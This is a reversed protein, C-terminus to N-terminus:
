AITVADIADGKPLTYPVYAHFFYDNGWSTGPLVGIHLAEDPANATLDEILDDHEIFPMECPQECRVYAIIVM